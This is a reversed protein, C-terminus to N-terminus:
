HENSHAKWQYVVHNESREIVGYAAAIFGCAQCATNFASTAGPGGYSRSPDDEMTAIWSAGHAERTVILRPMPNSVAEIRNGDRIRIRWPDSWHGSGRCWVPREHIRNIHPHQVSGVLLEGENLFLDITWGGYYVEAHGLSYSFGGSHGLISDVQELTMGVHIQRILKLSVPYPSSWTLPHISDTPTTPPEAIPTSCLLVGVSIIALFSVAVALTSKLSFGNM